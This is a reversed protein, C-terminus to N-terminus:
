FAKGFRIIIQSSINEGNLKAPIFVLTSLYKRAKKEIKKSCRNIFRIESVQGSAEILFSVSATCGIKFTKLTINWHDSENSNLQYANSDPDLLYISDGNKRFYLTSDAVNNKYRIKDILLSDADQIIWLGQKRGGLDVYNNPYDRNNYRFQAFLQQSSSLLTIVLFIRFLM